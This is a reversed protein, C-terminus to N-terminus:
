SCNMLKTLSACYDNDRVHLSPLLVRNEEWHAALFTKRYINKFLRDLPNLILMGIYQLLLNASYVFNGFYSLRFATWLTIYSVQSTIWLYKYLIVFLCCVATCLRFFHKWRKVLFRAFYHILIHQVALNCDRLFTTSRCRIKAGKKFRIFAVCNMIKRM